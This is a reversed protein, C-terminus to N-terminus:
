KVFGLRIEMDCSMLNGGAVSVEKVERFIGQERRGCPRQM